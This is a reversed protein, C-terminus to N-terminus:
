KKKQSEKYAIAIAIIAVISAGITIWILISGDLPLSETKESPASITKDSGSQNLASVASIDYCDSGSLNWTLKDGIVKEANHSSINGPLKISWTVSKTVKPDFSNACTKDIAKYTFYNDDIKLQNLKINLVKHLKEVEELDNFSYVYTCQDGGSPNNISSSGEYLINNWQISNFSQRCAEVDKVKGSQPYVIKLSFVGSGNKEFTIYSHIEECSTLLMLLLSWILWAKKSSM